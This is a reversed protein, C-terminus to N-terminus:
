PKPATQNLAERIEHTGVDMVRVFDSPNSKDYREIFHSMANRAITLRREIGQMTEYASEATPTGEFLKFWKDSEPTLSENM